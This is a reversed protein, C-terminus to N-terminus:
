PRYPIWTYWGAIEQAQAWRDVLECDHRADAPVAQWIRMLEEGKALVGVAGYPISYSGQGTLQDAFLAYAAISGMLPTPITLKGRRFSLLDANQQQQLSISDRQLVSLEPYERAIWQDIRMGIPLSRLNMLAWQAVFKSFEPIAQMDEPGLAQGAAVLPEVRTGADSAPSFDFRKAPENEFLRLVFGAQFAIMYDLPDNSPRYRLVHFAAGDRAMHLTALLPLSEDRMFQVSKGTQEEVRNLIGKTVARLHQMQVTYQRPQAGRVRVLPPPRPPASQVYRRNHGAEGTSLAANPGPSDGAAIVVQRAAGHRSLFHARRRLSTIWQRAGSGVASM